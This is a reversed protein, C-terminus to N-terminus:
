NEYSRRINSGTVDKGYQQKMSKSSAQHQIRTNISQHRTDLRKSREMFEKFCGMGTKKAINHRRHSDTRINM